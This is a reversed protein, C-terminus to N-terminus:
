IGSWSRRTRCSATWAATCAPTTSRAEEIELLDDLATSPYWRREIALESGPACLRHIALLAAIRSWPVDAAERDIHEAFFRDLELRKWLELGLFCSGFSRTRELRM